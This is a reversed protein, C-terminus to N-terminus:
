FLLIQVSGRKLTTPRPNVVIKGSTGSKEKIISAIKEALELKGENYIILMNGSDQHAGPVIETLDTKYNTASYGSDQLSKLIKLSENKSDTRYFLFIKDSEEQVLLNTSKVPNNDNVALVDASNKKVNELSLKLDVMEQSIEGRKTKFYAIDKSIRDREQEMADYQKLLDKIKVGIEAELMYYKRSMDEVSKDIRNKLVDEIKNEIMSNINYNIGFFGLFGTIIFIISFRKKFWETLREQSKLDHYHKIIDIQENDGM